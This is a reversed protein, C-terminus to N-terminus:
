NLWSHLTIPASKCLPSFLLPPPPTKTGFLQAPTLLGENGEHVETATTRSIELICSCLSPAAKELGAPSVCSESQVEGRKAEEKKLSPHKVRVLICKKKNNINTTTMVATSVNLNLLPLPLLVPGHLFYSTYFTIHAGRGAATRAM